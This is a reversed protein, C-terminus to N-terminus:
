AAGGFLDAQVPQGTVRQIFAIAADRADGETDVRRWPAASGSVPGIVWAAWAWGGSIPAVEYTVDWGTIDVRIEGPSAANAPDRVERCWADFRHNRCSQCHGCATIAVGCDLCPHTSM